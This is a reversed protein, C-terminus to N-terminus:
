GSSVRDGHSICQSGELNLWQPLCHLLHMIKVPPCLPPPLGSSSAEENTAKNAAEAERAAEAKKAAEAKRAAEVKKGAEPKKAAARPSPPKLPPHRQLIEHHLKDLLFRQLSQIRRALSRDKNAEV